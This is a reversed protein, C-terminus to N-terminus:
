IPTQSFTWIVEESLTTMILIVFYSSRHTVSMPKDYPSPTMVLEKLTKSEDRRTITPMKARHALEHNSKM